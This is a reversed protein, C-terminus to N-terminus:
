TGDRCYKCVLLLGSKEERPWLRQVTKECRECVLPDLRQTMPNWILSLSRKLKRYSVRVMVQAVPVLLRLAARGTIEVRISYKHELDRIKADSEEPLNAMKLRREERASNTLNSKALATEMEQKLAEYYERTSRADRHLRRRMSEIFQGLEAASMDEAVDLARLLAREPSAAFQPPIQGEPYLELEFNRWLIELGPIHTSTSESVGVQVLGEKREDSLAIYHCVLILYNAVTEARCAFECRAGSLKFGESVVKEFGDQKLYPVVSRAYVVPVDDVARRIIRDVIPSGYLLPAEEGGILAEEPLDLAKALNEPLLSLLKGDRHEVVGGYREILRAAFLDLGADALSSM